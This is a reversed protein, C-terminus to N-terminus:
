RDGNSYAAMAHLRVDAVRDEDGAQETRCDSPEAPQPPSGVAEGVPVRQPPQEDGDGRECDAPQRRDDILQIGAFAVHALQIVLEAIGTLGEDAGPRRDLRHDPPEVEETWPQDIRM